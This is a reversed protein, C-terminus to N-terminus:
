DVLELLASREGREAGGDYLKISGQPAVPEEIPHWPIIESPHFASQTDSYPRVL